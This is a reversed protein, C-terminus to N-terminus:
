RRSRVEERRSLFLRDFPPWSWWVQSPIPSFFFFISPLFPFKQYVQQFCVVVSSLSETGPFRQCGPQPLFTQHFSKQELSALLSCSPELVFRKERRQDSPQSRERWSWGIHVPTSVIGWRERHESMLIKTRIQTKPAFVVPVHRSDVGRRVTGSM